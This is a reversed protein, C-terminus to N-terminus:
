SRPLTQVTTTLAALSAALTKDADIRRDAQAERRDEEAKREASLRMRDWILFGIFLGPAGFLQGLQIISAETM